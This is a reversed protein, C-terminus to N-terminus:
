FIIAVVVEDFKSCSEGSADNNFSKLVFCQKEAVEDQSGSLNIRKQNPIMLHLYMLTEMSKMAFFVVGVTIGLEKVCANTAYSAHHCGHVNLYM